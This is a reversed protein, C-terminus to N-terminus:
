SASYKAVYADTALASQTGQINGAVYVNGAADAGVGQGSDLLPGGASAAFPAASPALRDELQELMPKHTAPRTRVAQRRRSFFRSWMTRDGETCPDAIPHFFM